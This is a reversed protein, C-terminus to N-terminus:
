LATMLDSQPRTSHHASGWAEGANIYWRKAARKAATATDRTRKGQQDKDSFLLGRWVEKMQWEVYYALMCLFM